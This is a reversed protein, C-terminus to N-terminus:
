NLLKDNFEKIAVHLKAKREKTSKCLLKKIHPAFFLLKKNM